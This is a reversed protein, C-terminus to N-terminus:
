GNAIGGIQRDKAAMELIAQYHTKNKYHKGNLECEAVVNFYKHLEDLSLEDCLASFQDNSMLVVGRGLEGNFYKRKAEEKLHKELNARMEPSLYEDDEAEKEEQAHASALTFSQIGTYPITNQISYETTPPQLENNYKTPNQVVFNEQKNYRTNVAQRRIESVSEKRKIQHFMISVIAKLSGDVNDIPNQGQRHYEAIARIVKWASEGDLHDLDDIWDYFLWFGKNKDKM